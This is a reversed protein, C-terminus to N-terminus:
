IWVPEACTLATDVTLLVVMTYPVIVVSLVIFIQAYGSVLLVCFRIRVRVRSSFLV